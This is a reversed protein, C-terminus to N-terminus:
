QSSARSSQHLREGDKLRAQRLDGMQKAFGRDPVEDGRTRGNGRALSSRSEIQGGAKERHQRNADDAAQKATAQRQTFKNVQSKVAQAIETFQRDAPTREFYGRDTTLLHTVEREYLDYYDEGLGEEKLAQMAKSKAEAVLQERRKSEAIKQDAVRAATQEATDHITDVWKGVVKRKADQADKGEIQDLEESLRRATDETSRSPRVPDESRAGLLRRQEERMEHLTSQMGDFQEKLVKYEKQSNVFRKKFSPDSQDSEGFHELDAEQDTGADQRGSTQTDRDDLDADLQRDLEEGEDAVAARSSPSGDADQGNMYGLDRLDDAATRREGLM